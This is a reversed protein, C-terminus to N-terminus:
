VRCVLGKLYAGEPFTLAVPHDAGQGLVGVIQADRGADLAAGFLIKQFLDASIAGSCSFSFLVGGPRLLQFALLNVDKYARSARDVSRRTPALKPPDLVILDFSRNQARYGRLVSFVDGEELAYKEKAIGNLDLNKGAIALAPESSEVLTVKDAGGLAAYIAFGGTYAFCDLVEKGECLSTLRARNERQDLYFGTKQGTQIDVLFRRSNESIEMPSPPEEGSLLGSRERLGEKERVEVDSREYIGKIDLTASLATLIEERCLEVGATLFQAVLFDGYRDVVLGPLGDSEGHIVRYSDTTPDQALTRRRVAARSVRRVWFDNDIREDADWTLLRISIQSRDSWIGRALWNGGSDLVEVLGGDGSDGDTRGVAGSFIWPHRRLV